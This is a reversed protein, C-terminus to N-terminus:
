ENISIQWKGSVNCQHAEFNDAEGSWIKLLQPDVRKIILPLKLCGYFSQYRAAHMNGNVIMRETQQWARQPLERSPRNRVPLVDKEVFALDASYTFFTAPEKLRCHTLAAGVQLRKSPPPPVASVPTGIRRPTATFWSLSLEPNNFGGGTAAYGALVAVQVKSRGERYQALATLIRREGASLKPPPGDLSEASPGRDSVPRTAREPRHNASFDPAAVAAPPSVWERDMEELLEKLKGFSQGASAAASVIRRFRARGQELKQRWVAREREVTSKVAGEIAVQDIQRAAGAGKLSKIQREM